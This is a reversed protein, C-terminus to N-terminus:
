MLEGFEMFTNVILMDYYPSPLTDVFMSNEERSTLSPRVISAANKWKVTYERYDKDSGKKMSQLTLRDPAIELMYKYRELFAWALDRWTRIQDKKLKMYWQAAAEVLSDYFVHILLDENHAHGAMKNCYTALHNEPYKIGYYKEIKPMKFKPPIVVDPVLSLEKPDVSGLDDVGEIEKLKKDLLSCKQQM